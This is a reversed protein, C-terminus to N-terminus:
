SNLLRLSVAVLLKMTLASQHRVPHNNVVEGVPMPSSEYSALIIPLSLYVPRAGPLQINRKETYYRSPYNPKNLNSDM